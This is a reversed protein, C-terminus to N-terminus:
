STLLWMMGFWGILWAVIFIVIFEVKMIVTKTFIKMRDGRNRRLGGSLGGWVLGGSVLGDLLCYFLGCM